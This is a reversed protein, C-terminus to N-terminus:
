KSCQSFLYYRKNTTKMFIKNKNNTVQCNNLVIPRKSSNRIFKATQPVQPYFLSIRKRLYWPLPFFTLDKVESCKRTEFKIWWTVKRIFTFFFYESNIQRNSARSPLLTWDEHLYEPLTTFILAILWLYSYVRLICGSNVLWCGPNKYLTYNYRKNM